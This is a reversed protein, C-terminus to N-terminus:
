GEGQREIEITGSPSCSWNWDPPVLITSNKGQIISPGEGNEEQSLFRRRYISTEKWEGSFLCERDPPHEGGKFSYQLAEAERESKVELHVRVVEIEEEREAYGYKNEHAQHFKEEIDDYSSDWPINIHYSQGEYRLGLLINEKGDKEKKERLEDIAKQIGSKDNLSTLVTRSHDRIVDGTVMGLASFVGAMPPIMVRKIGLIEALSAAHLPGAGGFALISFEEPSLGREVTIKKMTRAMKSNAVKFIGMLTEEFGMKLKKSLSEIARETKEMDL